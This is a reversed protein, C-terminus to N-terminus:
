EDETEAFVIWDGCAPCAPRSDPRNEAQVFEQPEWVKDCSSCWGIPPEGAEAAPLPVIQMIRGIPHHYGSGSRGHWQVYDTGDYRGLHIHDYGKPRGLEARAVPHRSLQQMLEGQGNTGTSQCCDTDAKAQDAPVILEAPPLPLRSAADAWVENADLHWQSIPVLGANPHTAWLQFMPTSNNRLKADPWVALVREKPTPQSVQKTEKLDDM